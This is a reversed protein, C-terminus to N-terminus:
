VDQRGYNGRFSCQTRRSPPLPPPYPACFSFINKWWETAFVSCRCIHIIIISDYIYIYIYLCLHSREGCVAICLYPVITTTPSPFWTPFPQKGSFARRVDRELGIMILWIVNYYKNFIYTKLCNEVWTQPRTVSRTRLTRMTCFVNYVGVSM